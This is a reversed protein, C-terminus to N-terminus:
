GTVVVRNTDSRGALAATLAALVGLLVWSEHQLVVANWLTQPISGPAQAHGSVILLAALPFAMITYGAITIWAATKPGEAL